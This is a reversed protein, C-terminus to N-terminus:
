CICVAYESPLIQTRAHFGHPSKSGVVGATQGRVRMDRVAESTGGRQAGQSAGPRPEPRSEGEMENEIEQVRADTGQLNLKMTLYYYALIASNWFFAIHIDTM